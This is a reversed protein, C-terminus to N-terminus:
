KTLALPRQKILAGDSLLEASQSEDRVWAVAMAGTADPDLKLACEWVVLVRWAANSLTRIAKIDRASNASLKADWFDSRTAPLRFLPCGDHRHWFCGHVFVAARWKPLVVDPRGPLARAHLRFRLGAHWLAHRIRLEPGTDKGRIKSMTESRQEASMVDAMEGTDPDQGNGCHVHAILYPDDVYECARTSEPFTETTKLCAGSVAREPDTDGGLHFPGRMRRQTQAREKSQQTLM